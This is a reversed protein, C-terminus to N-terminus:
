GNDVVTIKPAQLLPWFASCIFTNIARYIFNNNRQLQWHYPMCAIIGGIYVAIISDIIM